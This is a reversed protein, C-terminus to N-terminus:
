TQSHSFPPRCKLFRGFFRYLNRGDPAGEDHGGVGRDSFFVALARGGPFLAMSMIMSMYKPFTWLQMPKRHEVDLVFIFYM